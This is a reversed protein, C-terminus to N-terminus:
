PPALTPQLHRKPDPRDQNPSEDQPANETKRVVEQTEKDRNPQDHKERDHPPECEAHDPGSLLRRLRTPVSLRRHWTPIGAGLCAAGGLM